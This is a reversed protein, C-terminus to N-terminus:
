WGNWTLIEQNSNALKIIGPRQQQICPIPDGFKDDHSNAIRAAVAMGSVEFAVPYPSFAMKRGPCLKTFLMTTEMNPEGYKLWTEGGEDEPLVLINWHGDFFWKGLDNSNPEFIGSECTASCHWPLGTAHFSGIERLNRILNQVHAVNGM